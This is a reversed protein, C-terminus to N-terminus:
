SKVIHSKLQFIKGKSSSWAMKREFSSRFQGNLSNLHKKKLASNPFNSSKPIRSEASNSIPNWLSATSNGRSSLPASILERRQPVPWDIPSPFPTPLFHSESPKSPTLSNNGAASVSGFHRQLM